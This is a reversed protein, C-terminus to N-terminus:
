GPADLAQGPWRVKRHMGRREMGGVARMATRKERGRQMKGSWYEGVSGDGVATSESLMPTSSPRGM